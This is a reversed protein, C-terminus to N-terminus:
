RRKILEASAVNSLPVSIEASGGAPGASVVLVVNGGEIASIRGTLKRGGTTVLRVRQGLYAPLSTREIANSPASPRPAQEIREIVGPKWVMALTSNEPPPPASATGKPSSDRIVAAPTVPSSAPVVEKMGEPERSPSAVVPTSPEVPSLIPPRVSLTPLQGDIPAGDDAEILSEQLGVEPVSAAHFGDVPSSTALPFPEEPEVFSLRLMKPQEDGLRTTVNLVRLLEGRPYAHLDSPRWGSEPLSIVQMTGGESALKRYSARVESGAIVGYTALLAEFAGVNRDVYADIPVGLWQACFRNRRTLYGPDEYTFEAKSLQVDRQKSVDSWAAPVYEKLEASIKWKAIEPNSLEMDLNLLKAKDDYRYIIQDTREASTAGMSARDKATLADNGCGLTEFLVFDPSSVWTTPFSDSDDATVTLGLSQLTLSSPIGREDGLMERLLWFSEDAGISVVRARLQGQWLGENIRLRVGRLRLRGDFSFGASEYSLTATPALAVTLRDAMSRASFELGVAILCLTFFAALLANRVWKSM